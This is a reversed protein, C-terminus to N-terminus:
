AVRESRRGGQILLIRGGYRRESFRAGHFRLYDGILQRRGGRNEISQGNWIPQGADIRSKEIALATARAYPGSVRWDTVFHNFWGRADGNGRRHDALRKELNGTCGVYLLLGDADYAEYVYHTRATM